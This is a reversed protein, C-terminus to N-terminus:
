FSWFVAASGGLGDRFEAETQWRGRTRWLPGQLGLFAGVNGKDRVNLAHIRDRTDLAPSFTNTRTDGEIYAFHVDPGAYLSCQGAGGFRWTLPLGLELELPADVFVTQFANVEVTKSVQFASFRSASLSAGWSWRGRDWLLGRLGLTGFAQYGDGALDRKWDRYLAIDNVVLNAGGLRAFLEWGHGVYLSGEAFVRSVDVEYGYTWESADNRVGLGLSLRDSANTRPHAPGFQALAAQAVLSVLAAVVSIFCRRQM